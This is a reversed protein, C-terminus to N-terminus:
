AKVGWVTTGKWDFFEVADAQEDAFGTAGHRRAALGARIAQNPRILERRKYEADLTQTRRKM